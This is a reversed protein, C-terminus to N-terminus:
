GLYIKEASWTRPKSARAALEDKIFEAIPQLFGNQRTPGMSIADAL